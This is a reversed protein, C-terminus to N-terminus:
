QKKKNQKEQNRYNVYDIFHIIETLQEETIDEWIHAAVLAQGPSTSSEIFYDVPIRLGKALKAVTEYGPDKRIGSRLRSINTASVGSRLALENVKVKKVNMIHVLKKSFSM